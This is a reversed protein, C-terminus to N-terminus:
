FSLLFFDLDFLTSAPPHHTSHSSFIACLFYLSLFHSAVSAFLNAAILQSFAKETM